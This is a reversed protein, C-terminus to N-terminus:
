PKRRNSKALREYRALENAQIAPDQNIISDIDQITTSQDSKSLETPENLSTQRQDQQPLATSKQRRLRYLYSKLTAANIDIGAEKLGSVIQAIQVGAKIRSEILAHMSKIRAAKTRPEIDDLIKTPDTKRNQM